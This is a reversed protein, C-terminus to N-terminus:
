QKIEEIKQVLRQHIEEIEGEGDVSILRQQAQYFDLLPKTQKEYVNLRNRIVVENDDVRNSERGRLILRKILEEVNVELNLILPLAKAALLSDLQKAQQLNRPYGDFIFGAVNGNKLIHDEIIQNVIEDGVLEGRAIVDKVIKGLQSEKAVEERLLAGTSLHKLNFKETLKQAQTGKGAGPAGFIILNLM